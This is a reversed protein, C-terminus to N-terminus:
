IILRLTARVRPAEYARADCYKFIWTDCCHMHVETEGHDVEPGTLVGLETDESGPARWPIPRGVTRIGFAM